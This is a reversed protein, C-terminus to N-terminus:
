PAEQVPENDVDLRFTETTGNVDVTYEGAPLGLVDLAISEEFPVLAETCAQGVPRVTTIRVHFTNEERETTITDITTCGDALFGQAQVRVQVPFSEMILIDVREVTALGQVVGDDSATPTPVPTPSTGCATLTVALLLCCAMSRWLTQTLANNRIM